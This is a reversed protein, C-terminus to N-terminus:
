RISTSPIRIRVITWPLRSRSLRPIAGHFSIYTAVADSLADRASDDADRHQRHLALREGTGAALRLVPLVVRRDVNNHSYRCVSRVANGPSISSHTMKPEFARPSAPGSLSTSTRITRRSPSRLVLIIRRLRMGAARAAIGFCIGIYQPANQIAIPLESGDAVAGFFRIYEAEPMGRVPPPQLIAWDAGVAAAARLFAVQGAVNPESVTVALPLRGGLDEAVWDLLQRRESLDLKNVETGLGLAGIGHVGSRVCSDVQRRMAGRDLGGGEDFFAYLTPYIGRIKEANM